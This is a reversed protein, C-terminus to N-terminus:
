SVIRHPSVFAFIEDSDVLILLHVVESMDLIFSIEYLVMMSWIYIGTKHLHRSTVVNREARARWSSGPRAAFRRRVQAIDM